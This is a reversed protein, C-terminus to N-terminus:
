VYYQQGTLAPKKIFITECIFEPTCDKSIFNGTNKRNCSYMQLEKNFYCKSGM